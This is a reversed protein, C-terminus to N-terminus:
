PASSVMRTHALKTVQEIAADMHKHLNSAFDKYHPGRNQMSSAFRVNENERLKSLLEVLQQYESHNMVVVLYCM